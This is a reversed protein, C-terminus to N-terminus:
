GRIQVMEPLDQRGRSAVQAESGSAVVVVNRQRETLSIFRM